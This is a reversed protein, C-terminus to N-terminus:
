VKLFLKKTLANKKYNKTEQQIKALIDDKQIEKACVQTNIALFLGLIYVIKKM